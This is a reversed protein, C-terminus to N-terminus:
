LGSRLRRTPKSQPREGRGQARCRSGPCLAARSAQPMSWTCELTSGAPVRSPPSHLSMAGGRASRAHWCPLCRYLSMRLVCLYPRTTNHCKNCQTCPAYRDDRPAAYRLLTARQMPAQQVPIGGWGARRDGASAQEPRRGGHAASLWVGLSSPTGLTPNRWPPGLTVQWWTCCM